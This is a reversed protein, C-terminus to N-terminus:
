YLSLDTKVIQMKSDRLNKCIQIHLFLLRIHLSDESNACSLVDKKVGCWIYAHLNRLAGWASMCRLFKSAVTLVSLEVKRM